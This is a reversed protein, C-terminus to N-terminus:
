QQNIPFTINPKNNQIHEHTSGVTPLEEGETKLLDGITIRETLETIREQMEKDLVTIRPHSDLYGPHWYPFSVSKGFVLKEELATILSGLTLTDLNVNLGFRNESSKTYNSIIGALRLQRLLESVITVQPLLYFHNRLEGITMGKEKGQLLSLIQISYSVRFSLM